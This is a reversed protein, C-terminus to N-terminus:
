QSRQCEPLLAIARVAWADLEDVLRMAEALTILGARRMQLIRRGRADFEDFIVCEADHDITM